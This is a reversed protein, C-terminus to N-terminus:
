RYMFWSSAFTCAGNLFPLPALSGVALMLQVLPFTISNWFVDVDAENIVPFNKVINHSLSLTLQETMDSEAVGMSSLRPPEETCPIRWVLISSHIEM